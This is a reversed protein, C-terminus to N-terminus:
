GQGATEATIKRAADRLNQIRNHIGRMAHYQALVLQKVGDPLPLSKAQAFAQIAADESQDCATLIAFDSTGPIAKPGFIHTASPDSAVPDREAPTYGLEEMTAALAEGFGARYRSYQLLENKLGPDATADAAAQLGHSGDRCFEILNNLVEPISALATSM